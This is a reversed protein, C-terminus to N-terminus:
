FRNTGSAWLPTVGSYIVLNGDSQVVLYAGSHGSTNSAWRPVGNVDYVVLNGDGQMIAQGPTTGWTNSAWLPSTGFYLVLNGDGQYVLTFRGDVSTRSEGPGLAENPGLGHSTQVPTFANSFDRVSNMFVSHGAWEPITTTPSGTWDIVAYMDPAVGSRRWNRYMEGQRMLGDYWSFSGAAWFIVGFSMGNARVSDQISALDAATGGANWDHDLQAYQIGSGTRANTENNVDGFFARLTAASQHPYAEQLIVGVGPFEERALRIFEATQQVAYTYDMPQQGTTLPEDIELYDLTGGLDRFRRLNGVVQSWCAEGTACQPKLAGAAVVLLKGSSRVNSFCQSLEDDSLAAMFQHANGFFDAREWGTPWQDLNLCADRFPVGNPIPNTNMTPEVELVPYHAQAYADKPQSALAVFAIELLCIKAIWSVRNARTRKTSEACM